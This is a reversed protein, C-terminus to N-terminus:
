LYVLYSLNHLWSIKFNIMKLNTILNDFNFLLICSSNQFPDIGFINWFVKLFSPNLNGFNVYNCDNGYANKDM